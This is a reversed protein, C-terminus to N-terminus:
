AVEVVEPAMRGVVVCFGVSCLVMGMLVLGVMGRERASMPAAAERTRADGQIYTEATYVGQQYVGQEACHYPCGACARTSSPHTPKEHIGTDLDLYPEVYTYETAAHSLQSIASHKRSGLPSPSPCPTSAGSQPLLHSSYSHPLLEYADGHRNSTHLAPNLTPLPVYDTRSFWNM